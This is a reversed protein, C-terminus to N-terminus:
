LYANLDAEKFPKGNLLLSCGAKKMSARTKKDYVCSPSTTSMMTKGDRRVEFRFASKKAM